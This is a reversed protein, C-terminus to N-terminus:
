GGVLHGWANGEMREREWCGMRRVWSSATVTQAGLLQKM